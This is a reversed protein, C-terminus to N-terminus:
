AMVALLAAAHTRNRAGIMKLVKQVEWKVVHFGLGMARSIEKDAMGEMICAAIGSHKPAWLRRLGLRHTPEPEPAATGPGCEKGPRPQKQNVAKACLASKKM